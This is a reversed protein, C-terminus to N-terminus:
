EIPAACRFGIFGYRAGPPGRRPAAARCFRPFDRWSGGRVVRSEKEGRGWASGDSPAGKYSDHWTDQCWEWVNGHMDYLGFANPPFSGVPVTQGRFEGKASGHYTFNGDFNAQDTTIRPGFHFPTDTGARCAYEWEAESPLRYARGTQEGLWACYDRAAEWSVNIVPRSGRGWGQDEPKGIKTDDCFREYDEFTVAYVGMAFPAAIRVEHQPGEYDTREAENAPSGMRFRGAPIVVMLPGDAGSKLRDRFTQERAPVRAPAPQRPKSTVVADAHLVDGSRSAAERSNLHAKLSEMLEALGPHGEDGAWGILDATQIRGFGYPFEVREIFAPFLIEKRKSYQAEELVFDSDRSRASWLVVVAKAEHLEKEIEKHWRKGVHTQVDMFVSWGEVRLREALQSAVTSDTRSYCIFIDSM